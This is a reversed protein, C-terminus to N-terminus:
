HLGHFYAADTASERIGAAADAAALAAVAADVASSEGLSRHNGVQAMSSATEAEYPTRLALGWLSGPSYPWGCPLDSATRGVAVVYGGTMSSGGSEGGAM